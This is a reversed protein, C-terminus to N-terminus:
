CFYITTTLMKNKLKLNNKKQFIGTSHQGCCFNGKNAKEDIKTIM